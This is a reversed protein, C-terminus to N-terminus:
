QARLELGEIMSQRWVLTMCISGNPLRCQQMSAHTQTPAFSRKGRRSVSFKQEMGTNLLGRCATEM